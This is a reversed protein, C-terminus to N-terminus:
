YGFSTTVWPGSYYFSRARYPRYYTRYSPYYTNYVPPSYYYSTAPETYVPVSTSPVVTTSPPYYYSTYAPTYYTPTYYTPTYYYTRYRWWPAAESKLPTLGVMGLSVLGLFASLFLNRM